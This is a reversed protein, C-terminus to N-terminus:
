QTPLEYIEDDSLPELPEVSNWDGFAYTELSKEEILGRLVASRLYNEPDIVIELEEGLDEPTGTYRYLQEGDQDVVESEWEIEQVADVPPLSAFLAQHLDSLTSGSVNDPRKIWRGDIEAAQDSIGLQELFEPTGQVFVDEGYGRVNLEVGEIGIVGSYSSDDVFGAMDMTVDQEPTSLSSEIHVSESQRANVLVDEWVAALEPAESAAEASPEETASEADTPEVATDTGSQDAPTSAATANPADSSETSDPENSGGCASLALAAAVGLGTLGVLRRPTHDPSTTRSM